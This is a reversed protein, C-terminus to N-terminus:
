NAIDAALGTHLAGARFPEHRLARLIFPINTKVGQVEFDALATTLTDLAEDRTAGHAIVKALMPDYFPTVECGEAYGTEIRLGPKPSCPRYRELRGPSPMFSQPDEAYIRAEVAHGDLAIEEPLVDSIARGAALGIQAKVIDIGTVMETVAHEVQLRTNMELFSFGGDDARLMEITGINDYGLRALIYTAANVIADLADRSLAPAPAEEVVKQHRRQLSCDREFLHRAAGYRDALFQFEIHRPRALYRELYVQGNGFSRTALSRAREVGRSLSAEDQAVIMGIGGGGAAPKVLVPYGIRRATAAIDDGTEGLLESGATVPMGHRRMLDRAETKHGMAEIWRPSPGIFTMGADAVAHAFAANESLFGYGPHIADAGSERAVAIIKEARLYSERAPAAGICFAETAVQLYPAKADADSFIAVSAIDLEGLARIIRSAAAGRNAVLVKQFSRKM